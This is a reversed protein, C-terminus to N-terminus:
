PCEAIARHFIEAVGFHVIGFDCYNIYVFLKWENNIVLMKPQDFSRAETAITLWNTFDEIPLLYVSASRHPEPQLVANLNGPTREHRLLWSSLVILNFAFGIRFIRKLQCCSTSPLATVAAVLCTNTEQRSEVRVSLAIGRIRCSLQQRRTRNSLTNTSLTTM